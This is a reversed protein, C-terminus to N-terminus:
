AIQEDIQSLVADIDISNGRRLNSLPEHLLKRITKANDDDGKEIDIGKRNAIKRADNRLAVIRDTAELARFREVCSIVTPTVALIMASEAAKASLQPPGDAGSSEERLQNLVPVVKPSRAAKGGQLAVDFIIKSYKTRCNELKKHNNGYATNHTEESTLEYDNTSDYSPHQQKSYENSFLLQRRQSGESTKKLQFMIHSDRSSFPRFIPRDLLGSALQILRKSVNQTGNVITIEEKITEELENYKEKQQKKQQAFLYNSPLNKIRSPKDLPLTLFPIIGLLKLKRRQNIIQETLYSAIISKITDIRDEKHKNNNNLKNNDISSKTETEMTILIEFRKCTSIVACEIEVSQIIKEQQNINNSNISPAVKLTANSLSQLEKAIEDLLQQNLRLLSKPRQDFYVGGDGLVYCKWRKLLQLYKSRKSNRRIKGNEKSAHNDDNNNYDEENDLEYLEPFTLIFVDLEKCSVRATTTSNESGESADNVDCEEGGRNMRNVIISKDFHRLYDTTVKRRGRINSKTSGLVDWVHQVCPISTVSTSQFSSIAKRPRYCFCSAKFIQIFELVILLLLSTIFSM